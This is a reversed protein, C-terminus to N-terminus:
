PSSQAGAMTADMRAANPEAPTYTAAYCALRRRLARPPEAYLRAGLRRATRRLARRRIRLQEIAQARAAATLGDGAATLQASLLALDHEEGITASLARALEVRARFEDPWLDGLLQMHRWHRQVRKRWDHYAESTGAEIARRRWRRGDRYTRAASRVLRDFDSTELALADLHREATTALRLPPLRAMRDGAPPPAPSLESPLDPGGATRNDARLGDWAARLVQQDRAGALSRGLDRLIRDLRRAQRDRDLRTVLQLWARLRKLAKRTDHVRAPDRLGQQVKTWQKNGVARIASPLPKTLDLRYAM